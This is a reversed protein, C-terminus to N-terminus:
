YFYDQSMIWLILEVCDINSLILPNQALEFYYLTDQHEHAIGKM